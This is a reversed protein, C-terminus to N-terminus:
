LRTVERHFDRTLERRFDVGLTGATTPAYALAVEPTTSAPSSAPGEVFSDQLALKAFEGAQRDSIVAVPAAVPLPSIAIVVEGDVNAAYIEPTPAEGDQPAASTAIASPDFAPVDATLPTEATALTVDARTFAQSRIVTRGDVMTRISAQVVELDSRTETRPRIRDTKGADALATVSEARGFSLAQSATSFSEKGDFAVYLAAGMLMVSTIGTMVTGALWAISLERGRPHEGDLTQLSLPPADEYGVEDLRRHRNTHLRISGHRQRDPSTDWHKM